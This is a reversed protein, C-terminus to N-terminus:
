NNYIYKGGNQRSIYNLMTKITQMQSSQKQKTEQLEKVVQSFNEYLHHIQQLMDSQSNQLLAVHAQVDGSDKRQGENEVSKRKIDDLLDPRNRLFKAHSFEWIQNEALTRHGRPSKNVKHFGYRKKLFYIFLFHV